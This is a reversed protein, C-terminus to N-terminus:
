MSEIKVYKFIIKEKIMEWIIRNMEDGEMEVVENKEV